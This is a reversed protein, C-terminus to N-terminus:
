PTGIDAAVDNAEIQRERDKRRAVMMRLDDDHRLIEIRPKRELLLQAIVQSLVKGFRDAPHAGELHPRRDSPRQLPAQAPRIKLDQSRVGELQRVDDGAMRAGIADM